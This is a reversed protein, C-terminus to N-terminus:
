GLLFNAAQIAFNAFPGPLLGLIVVFITLIAIALKMFGSKRFNMSKYNQFYKTNMDSHDMIIYKIIWLYGAAAFFTLGLMSVGAIIGIPYDCEFLGLILQLKSWFGGTFPISALSFLGIVLCTGIVPDQRGLGKYHDLYYSGTSFILYGAIMFMIGKAIAHNLAHLLVGSIGMINMTGLGTLLYGMHSITSFALIRKLNRAQSDTRKFQILVFLNGQLSTLIGAFILLNSWGVELNIELPIILLLLTRLLGYTGAIVVIGSLIASAPPPAAPHADPLWTNLFFMSATIGFGLAMLVIAISLMLNHQLNVTEFYTFNLDGTVGYLLALGYLVLLSGTSSMMLYKFGAESSEQTRYFGVMSYACLAMGEYAVFLTFFDSAMVILNLGTVVAFLLAYFVALDDFHDMFNICYISVVFHIMTFIVIFFLSTLDTHLILFSTDTFYEQGSKLINYCFLLALFFDLFTGIFAITHTLIKKLRSSTLLKDIFILLFSSFFPTIVFIIITINQGFIVIM